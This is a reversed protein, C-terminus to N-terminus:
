QQSTRYVFLVAPLHKDWDNQEENVMKILATQLTHNFRETLGNTQPHYASTIQHEMGTLRFLEEELHNVIERDQDSITIECCGFRYLLKHLTIANRDNLIM